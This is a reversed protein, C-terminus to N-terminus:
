RLRLLRRSVPQCQWWTEDYRNCAFGPNCSAGTWVADVCDDVQDCYVKDGGCQGYNVVVYPSIYPQVPPSEPVIVNSPSLVAVSDLVPSYVTVDASPSPTVEVPPTPLAVVPPTSTIATTSATITTTDAAATSTAAATNGATTVPAGGLTQTGMPGTTDM